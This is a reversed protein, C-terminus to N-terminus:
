DNKLDEEKLYEEYARRLESESVGWDRHAHQWEEWTPNIPHWFTRTDTM